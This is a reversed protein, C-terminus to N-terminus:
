RSVQEDSSVGFGSLRWYAKMRKAFAKSSEAFLLSATRFADSQLEQRRQNILGHVVKVDSDSIGESDFDEIQDAFVALDHDDGLWDGLRDLQKVWVKNAPPWLDRLLRMHYWHYKVRKRLEHLKPTSPDACADALRKVARRRTKSLGGTVAAFGTQELTWGQLRQKAASFEEGIAQLREDIRTYYDNVDIKDHQQTSQGYQAM